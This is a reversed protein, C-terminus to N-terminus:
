RPSVHAIFVGSIKAVLLLSVGLIFLEGGM